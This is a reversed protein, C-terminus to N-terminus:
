GVRGPEGSAFSVLRALGEELLARRKLFSVVVYIEESREEMGYFYGPHLYVGRSRLLEVAFSEDDSWGRKTGRPVGIVAHIGGTPAAVRLGSTGVLPGTPMGSSAPSGAGLSSLLLDRNELLTENMESMLGQGKAFLGPLIHQTLSTCSLFTDNAVELRDLPEAVAIPDGSVAIWGLKLDPSAFMKSIGNLTFVPVTSTLGAPRAVPQGAIRGFGPYAMESFVEDSILMTGTAECVRLLSAVEDSDAVRGTPNNPSILVVFSTDGDIQERVREPDIRFSDEFRMEYYRPELRSYEALYEFLPYTPRPLVVNDGADALSSFLLGYAESTSATVIIRDSPISIGQREYYESVATRAPLAGKPEPSY